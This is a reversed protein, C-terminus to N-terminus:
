ANPVDEQIFIKMECEALMQGKYTNYGRIVSVNMFASIEEITTEIQAGVEPLNHIVLKSIAGIFGIKPPENTSYSVYGARAAATQAINETLGPAQLKGNEVFLNNAEVTFHSVTKTEEQAILEHVMLIPERQPVLKEIDNRTILTM